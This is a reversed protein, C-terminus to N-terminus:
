EYQHQITCWTPGIPGLRTLTDLDIANESNIPM